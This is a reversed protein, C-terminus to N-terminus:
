GGRLRRTVAALDAHFANKCYYRLEDLSAKVDAMARHNIPGQPYELQPYWANVLASITGIDVHRFHLHQELRPMYRALFRWDHFVSNGSLLGEGAPCHPVIANLVQREAERLSVGNSRVADLLGNETHMRRVRESMRDLFDEPASVVREIEVLPELDAGTVVAAIELVADTAPNLGTMELDIWVLRVEDRSPMHGLFRGRLGPAM